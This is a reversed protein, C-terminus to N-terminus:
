MEDGFIKPSQIGAEDMEFPLPYHKVCRYARERIAKPVKPTKKPDLLDILFERTRNVAQKREIPLTM